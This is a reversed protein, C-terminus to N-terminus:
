KKAEEIAEKVKMEALHKLNEEEKEKRREFIRNRHPDNDFSKIAM